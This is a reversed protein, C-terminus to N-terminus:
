FYNNNQSKKLLDKNNFVGCIELQYNETKLLLRKQKM